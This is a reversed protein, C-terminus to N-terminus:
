KLAQAVASLRGLTNTAGQTIAEPYWHREFATLTRPLDVPNYGLDILMQKPSGYPEAFADTWFGVGADALRKWPFHEGPDSKRTPALDSHGIVWRIEHRTMIEKCLAIVAEIQVDPYPPRSGDAAYGANVIEIGVSASNLDELGRWAGGGAHWARRDEDVLRFVSGDEGVVYHASVPDSSRGNTLVRLSKDLSEIATYHLMITDVTRSRANHNPSPYPLIELTPAPHEVGIEIEACPPELIEEPEAQRPSAM